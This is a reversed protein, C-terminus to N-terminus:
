LQVYAEEMGAEDIDPETGVESEHDAREVGLNCRGTDVFM